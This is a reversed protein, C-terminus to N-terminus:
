RRRRRPRTILIIGGVLAAGGLLAQTKTIQMGFLDITNSKYPKGTNVRSVVDQVVDGVDETDAGTDSDGGRVTDLVNTAKNYAKVIRGGFPRVAATDADDDGDHPVVKNGVVKGLINGFKDLVKTGGDGKAARDKKAQGKDRRFASKSNKKEVKAAQKAARKQKRPKAQKTESKTAKKEAKTAKKDAKKAARKESRKSALYSIEELTYGNDALTDAFEGLSMGHMADQRIQVGHAPLHIYNSLPIYKRLRKRRQSHARIGQTPGEALELIMNNIKNQESDKLNFAIEQRYPYPREYNYVKNTLDIYKRGDPTDIYQYIHVPKYKRRGVLVIGTPYDFNVLACTLGAITFCDCDGAGPIGHRNDDGLLTPLTQFLERGKPDHKYQTRLKLWNFMQQPSSFRPVEEAAYDIGDIVQGRFKRLTDNLDKYRYTAVAM